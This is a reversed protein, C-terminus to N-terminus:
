RQKPSKSCLKGQLPSFSKVLLGHGVWVLFLLNYGELLQLRTHDWGQELNSWVYEHLCNM